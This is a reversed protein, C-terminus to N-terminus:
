IIGLNELTTKTGGIDKELSTLERKAKLIISGMEELALKIEKNANLRSPVRAKANKMALEAREYASNVESMSSDIGNWVAQCSSATEEMQEVANIKKHEMWTKIYKHVGAESTRIKHVLHFFAKKPDESLALDFAARNTKGSGNRMDNLVSKLAENASLGYGKCVEIMSSIDNALQAMSRCIMISQSGLKISESYMPQSKNLEVGYKKEYDKESLDHKNAMTKWNLGNRFEMFDKQTKDRKQDAQTAMKEADSAMKAILQSTKLVLEAGGESEAKAEAQLLAKQANARLTTIQQLVTEMQTKLVRQSDREKVRSSHLLEVAKAFKKDNAKQAADNAVGSGMKKVEAVGKEKLRDESVGLKVIDKKYDGAIAMVALRMKMVESKLQASNLKEKGAQVALKDLYVKTVKEFNGLASNMSDTTSGAAKDLGALETLVTKDASRFSNFAESCNLAISAKKFAEFSKKYVVSASM